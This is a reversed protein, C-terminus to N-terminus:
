EPKTKKTARKPKEVKDSTDKELEKAAATSSAASKKATKAKTTTKKTTKKATAKKVKVAPEKKVKSAKAEKAPTEEDVAVAEQSATPEEVETTEIEPLTAGAPREAEIQAYQEPSMIDIHYGTLKDALRVNQGKSGIALSLEAEPVVVIAAKEAERLKVQVDKAPQLAASIFKVPDENYAIVDIKEGNLENIVTQIRNGKQGVCSGVPDVGIQHSTVAIKTRYGAERAVGKIEVSGANIEPVEQKFLGSVLEPHSRSVIIESRHDRDRIELIYFKLRQNLRYEENPLQERPPLIAETRGIDVIYVPGQQRQIMGSIVSGVRQSFDSLIADKEAERIRQLLVQKATQAAIRGFGAPTIDQGEKILKVEGSESDLEVDIVDEEGVEYDRRYAAIIAMKITDLVEVPDLGRENAVQNLAASFESRGTLAM